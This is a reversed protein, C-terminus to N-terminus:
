LADMLEARMHVRRRGRPRPPIAAPWRHLPFEAKVRKMIAQVRRKEKPDADIFEQARNIANIITSHNVRQFQDAIQYLSATTLKRMLWICAFRARRVVLARTHKTFVSANVGYAEATAVKILDYLSQIQEDRM